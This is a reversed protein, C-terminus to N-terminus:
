NIPITPISNTIANNENRRKPKTGTATIKGVKM